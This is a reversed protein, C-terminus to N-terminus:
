AALAAGRDGEPQEVLGANLWQSRINRLTQEVESLAVRKAPDTAKRSFVRLEEITEDMAATRAKRLEEPKFIAEITTSMRQM